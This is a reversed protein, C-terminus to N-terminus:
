PLDPEGGGADVTRGTSRAKAGVRKRIWNDAVAIPRSKMWWYAFTAVTIAQLPRYAIAYRPEAQFVVHIATLYVVLLGCLAAGPERRLLLVTCGAALLMLLIPHLFLFTTEIPRLPGNFPSNSTRLFYIGGQGLEISWGWLSAPKDLAYWRLYKMPDSAIRAAVQPWGKEPQETVLKVENEIVRGNNSSVVFFGRWRYADHYEPWSGQVINMAARNPAHQVGMNRVGWTAVPILMVALMVFAVKRRYLIAVGVPFLAILPNVLYALGFAAGAMTGDRAANSRMARSTLLLSGVLTAGFLVESLLSASAVIHHPWLAAMVGAAIAYGIPLWQRALVVVGVATLAGLLAQTHRVIAVFTAADDGSLPMLAALLAPYGPTRFDDPAIVERGMSYVGSHVLNYAYRMYEFSDGAFPYPTSVVLVYWERLILALAFVASTLIWERRTM